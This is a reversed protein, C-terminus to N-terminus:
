LLLYINTLLLLLVTYKIKNLFQFRPLISYLTFALIAVEENKSLLLNALVTVIKKILLKVNPIDNHMNLISKSM